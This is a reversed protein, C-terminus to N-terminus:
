VKNSNREYKDIREDLYKLVEDYVKDFIHKDNVVENYKIFNKKYEKLCEDYNIDFAFAYHACISDNKNKVFERNILDHHMLENVVEESLKEETSRLIGEDLYGYLFMIDIKDVDRILNLHKLTRKSLNKPINFKNHYKISNKIIPYWEKKDCFLKIKDKEFLEVVSFDAHDVTELDNFSDYVKLQEFRGIDHLLGILTALNIDDESFGLLKAYKNSLKMVRLSHNYKLKIKSNNLDYDSVYKKFEELM